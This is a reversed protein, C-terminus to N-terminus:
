KKIRIGYFIVAMYHLSYGILFAVFNYKNNKCLIIAISFTIIVRVAAGLVNLMKNGKTVLIYSTTIANLQFNLVAVLLGIIVVYDYAKFLFYSIIGSIIAIIVDFVIIKKIMIKVQEDM